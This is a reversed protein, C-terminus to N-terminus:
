EDDEWEFSPAEHAYRSWDLWEDKHLRGITIWHPVGIFASFSKIDNLSHYRDSAILGKYMDPNILTDRAFQDAKSEQESKVSDFDVFRTNLDGNILHGVEHFLSFWFKDASKGRITLCLIVRGTDTLKIFGQVPAGRFHRVVEFAIGCEAFVRKLEAVMKDPNKEFMIKKLAPINDILKQKDFPANVSVKDTMIECMRQWAFLTYIDINTSTKVQARYAASYTIKPIVTLSNVCLVQRLQIVKETDGCHNHMIGIKLFYEVIDKMAKLISFEEDTIGNLEELIATYDDYEAQYKAWTGSPAGLAIDLRRAFASSIDKTGNIVTSIHKESMGTRVSLEKQNMGIRNIESLLLKGPHEIKENTMM